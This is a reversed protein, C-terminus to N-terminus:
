EPEVPEEFGFWGGLTYRAVGDPLHKLPEIEHHDHTHVDFMILSNFEPQFRAEEGSKGVMHLSGGYDPQWDPTLYLIYASKRNGSKDNHRRLFQGRSFKHTVAVNTRNFPTNCIQAAFARFVDTDLLKRLKLYNISASTISFSQSNHDIMDYVFMRDEDHADHWENETVQHPKRSYLGYVTGYFAENALYKAVQDAIDPKLFNRIQIVNLPHDQYREQYAHIWSGSLHEENVFVNLESLILEGAVSTEQTDM